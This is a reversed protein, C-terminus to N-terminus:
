HPTVQAKLIIEHGTPKTKGAIIDLLLRVGEVGMEYRPIRTGQLKPETELGDMGLIKLDEGPILGAEEVARRVAQYQHDFALAVAQPKKRKLIACMAQYGNQAFPPSHQILEGDILGFNQIASLYAHFKDLDVCENGQTRGIFAINKIGTKCLHGIVENLAEFVDPYVCNVSRCPTKEGILVFPQPQRSLIDLQKKDNAGILIRGACPTLNYYLAALGGSETDETLESLVLKYKSEKLGDMVGRWVEGFYQHVSIQASGVFLLEIFANAHSAQDPQMQGILTGKKRYRTVIGEKALRNLAKNVTKFNVKFEEALELSSPLRETYFGSDIRRKLESIIESQKEM